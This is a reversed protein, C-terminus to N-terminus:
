TEILKKRPGWKNRARRTSFKKNIKKYAAEVDKEIRYRLTDKWILECKTWTDDSFEAPKRGLPGTKSRRLGKGGNKVARRAITLMERRQERDDSRLNLSLDVYVPNRMPDEIEDICWNFLESLEGRKTQAPDAITYLYPVCLTDVHRFKKIATAFDTYILDKDRPGKRDLVFIPKCEAARAM